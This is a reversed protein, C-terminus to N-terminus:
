VDAAIAAIDSSLFVNIIVVLSSAVSGDKVAVGALKTPPFNFFCALNCFALFATPILNVPTDAVVAANIVLNSLPEILSAPVNVPAFNAVLPEVAGIYILPALPWTSILGEEFYLISTSGSIIVNISLVISLAPTPYATLCANVATLGELSM